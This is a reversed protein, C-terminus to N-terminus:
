AIRQQALELLAQRDSPKGDKIVDLTSVVEGRTQDETYRYVARIQKSFGIVSYEKSDAGISVELGLFTFWLAWDKLDSERNAQRGAPKDHLILNRRPSSGACTAYNFSAPGTELWQPSLTRFSQHLTAPYTRAAEEMPAWCWRATGSEEIVAAFLNDITPTNGVAPVLQITLDPKVICSTGANYKGWPAYFSLEPFDKESQGYVVLQGDQPLEEFFYIAAQM